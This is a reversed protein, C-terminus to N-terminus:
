NDTASSSASVMRRMLLSSETLEKNTSYSKSPRSMFAHCLLTVLLAHCNEDRGRTVGNM